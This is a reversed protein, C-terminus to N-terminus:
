LAGIELGSRLQAINTKLLVMTLAIVYGAHSSCIVDQSSNIL